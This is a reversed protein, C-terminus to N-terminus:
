GYVVGRLNVRDPRSLVEPRAPGLRLVAPGRAGRRGIGGGWGSGPCGVWLLRAGTPTMGSGPWRRWRAVRGHAINGGADTGAPDARGGSGPPASGSPCAYLESHPMAPTNGRRFRLGFNDINILTPVLATGHEVMMEVTDETLGTGHEICDIGANILGPLADEGFM